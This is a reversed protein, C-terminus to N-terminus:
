ATRSMPVECHHPYQHDVSEDIECEDVKMTLPAIENGAFAVNEVAPLHDLKVSEQSLIMRMLPLVIGQLFRRIEQHGYRAREGDESSDGDPLRNLKGPECGHKAPVYPRTVPVENGHERDYDQTDHVDEHDKGDIWVRYRRHNGAVVIRRERGFRPVCARKVM